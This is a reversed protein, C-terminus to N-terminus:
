RVAELLRSFYFQTKNMARREIRWGNAELAKVVDAERHLYARTAKSP